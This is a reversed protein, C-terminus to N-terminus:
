TEAALPEDCSVKILQMPKQLLGLDPGLQPPRFCLVKLKGACALQRGVRAFIALFSTMHIMGNQREV